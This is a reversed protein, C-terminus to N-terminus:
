RSERSCSDRNCIRTEEANGPCPRGGNNAQRLVSRSRTQVGGGCTASCGSWEGFQSWECNVLLSSPCQIVAGESRSSPLLDEEGRPCARQRSCPKSQVAGGSCPRGGNLAPQLVMRKRQQTGGSGCTVSCRSWEGYGSWLCNVPGARPPPPHVKPSKISSKAVVM